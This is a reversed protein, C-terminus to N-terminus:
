CTTVNVHSTTDIGPTVLIPTDNPHHHFYFTTLATLKLLYGSYTQGLVLGMDDPPDGLWHFHSYGVLRSKTAASVCFQSMGMNTGDIGVVTAQAPVGQITWGVLCARPDTSCDMHEAVPIGNITEGTYHIYLYGQLRGGSSVQSQQHSDIHNGFLFTYPAAHDKWPYASGTAAQVPAAPLVAMTMLLVVALLMKMM